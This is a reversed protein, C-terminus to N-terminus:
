EASRASGSTNTGSNWPLMATSQSISTTVAMGYVQPSIAITVAAVRATRSPPAAVTITV